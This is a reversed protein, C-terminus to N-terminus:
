RILGENKLDELCARVSEVPPQSLGYALQVLGPLEAEPNSGNCLELVLAASPNLRHVRESGPKLVTYGEGDLEIRLDPAMSPVDEPDPYFHKELEALRGERDPIAAPQLDEVLKAVDPLILLHGDVVESHQGPAATAPSTASELSVPAPEAAPALAADLLRAAALTMETGFVLGDAYQKGSEAIQRADRDHERCWLIQEELDSLDAQVPIYHEWPRLDDYYWQRCASQVKLVCSGMSLKPLLSWSNSNGDIDIQYRFRLFETEPIHPALIGLSEAFSRIRGGDEPTRAQVIATLRADLLGRAGAVSLACLRFRPLMQFTDLTVPGPGTSSGRWFAITMRDQWPAQLKRLQERLDFYGRTMWFHLDPILTVRPDRACFGISPEIGDACDAVQALCIATHIASLREAYRHFYHPHLLYSSILDDLYDISLPVRPRPLRNSDPAHIRPRSGPEPQFQLLLFHNTQSSQRGAAWRAQEPTFPAVRPPAESVPSETPGSQSNLGVAPM